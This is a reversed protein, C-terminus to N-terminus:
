SARSTGSKRLKRPLLACPLQVSSTRSSALSSTPRIMCNPSSSTKSHPCGASPVGSELLGSRCDLHRSPRDSGGLASFTVTPVLPCDDGSFSIGVQPTLLMGGIIRAAEEPDM